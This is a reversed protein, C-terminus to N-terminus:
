LTELLQTGPTASSPTSLPSPCAPGPQRTTRIGPTCSKTRDAPPSGSCTQDPRPRESGLPGSAVSIQPSLGAQLGIDGHRLGVGVETGKAERGEGGPLGEQDGCGQSVLEKSPVPVSAPAGPSRWGCQAPSSDRGPWSRPREPETGGARM